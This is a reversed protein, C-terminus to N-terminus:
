PHRHIRRHLATRSSRHSCRHWRNSCYAWPSNRRGRASPALAPLFCACEFLDEPAPKGNQQASAVVGDSPLTISRLGSKPGDEDDDDSTPPTVLSDRTTIKRRGARGPGADTSAPKLPVCGIILPKNGPQQEADQRTVDTPSHDPSALPSTSVTLVSQLLAISHRSALQVSLILSPYLVQGPPLSPPPLRPDAQPQGPRSRCPHSSSTRERSSRSIPQSLTRARTTPWIRGLDAHFLSCAFALGARPTKLSGVGTKV